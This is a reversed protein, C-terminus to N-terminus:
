NFTIVRIGNGNNQTAWKNTGVWFTDDAGDLEAVKTNSNCTSGTYISDSKVYYTTGAILTCTSTNYTTITAGSGPAIEGPPDQPGPLGVGPEDQPGIPGAAGDRGNQGNCTVLSGQYLDGETVSQSRDLDQYVDFRSGGAEDCECQTAELSEGVLSYGDNGPAGNTGDAGADGKLLQVTASDCAAFLMLVTLFLSKWYKM